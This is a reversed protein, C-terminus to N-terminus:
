SWGAPNRRGRARAPNTCKMEFKLLACGREEKGGCEREASPLSLCKERRFQECGAFRPRKMAPGVRAARHSRFKHGQIEQESEEM